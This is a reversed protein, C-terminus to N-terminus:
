FSWVDRLSWVVAYVLEQCRDCMSAKWLGSTFDMCGFVNRERFKNTGFCSKLLVEVVSSRSCKSNKQQLQLEKVATPYSSLTAELLASGEVGRLGTHAM